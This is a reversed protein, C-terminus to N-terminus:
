EITVALRYPYAPGGQDHADQLAILVSGASPDASGASDDAAALTRGRADYITLIPDMASGHRAALVAVTVVAGPQGRLLYVDVDQPDRISGELMRGPQMEQAQRFGDNPDTEALTSDPSDILLAHPTSEGAPGVAILDLKGPPWGAPLTLELVILTDGVRATDQRERLDANGQSVIRAAVGGAARVETATDLKQGRLTVQATQGAAVGLPLCM